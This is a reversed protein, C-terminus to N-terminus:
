KVIKGGPLPRWLFALYRGDPDVAVVQFVVYFDSGRQTHVYQLYVRGEKAVGGYGSLGPHDITIKEPDPNKEFDQEGLDVVFSWPHGVLRFNEDKGGAFWLQWEREGNEHVFSFNSHRGEGLESALLVLPYKAALAKLKADKAIGKRVIQEWEKKKAVPDDQSGALCLGPVAWDGSLSIDDRKPFVVKGGPLKRWLFAVYRSGPDVSVVEVLAYFNNGPQDRVRELYVHGEKAEAGLPIFGAHTVSIKKPDPDQDFEVEGLDVLLCWPGIVAFKREGGGNDFILQAINGHAKDDATEFLFSFASMGYKGGKGYQARSHLLALKHKAALKKLRDDKAIRKRVADEWEKMPPVPKDEEDEQGAARGGPLVLLILGAIAAAYLLNKRV